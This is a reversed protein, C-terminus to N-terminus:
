NYSVLVQDGDMLVTNDSTNILYRYEARDEINVWAPVNIVDKVYPYEKTTGLSGLYEDLDEIGEAIVIDGHVEPYNRKLFLANLEDLLRMYEGPLKGNEYSSTLTRAMVLSGLAQYTYSSMTISGSPSRKTIQGYNSLRVKIAM